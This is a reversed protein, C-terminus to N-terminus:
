CSVIHITFNEFQVTEWAIKNEWKKKLNRDFIVLWGVKEGNVDLYGALGLKATIRPKIWFHKIIL